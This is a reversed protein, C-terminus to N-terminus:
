TQICRRIHKSSRKPRIRATPLTTLAQEETAAAAPAETPPEAPATTPAAAQQPQAGCAVLLLGLVLLTILLHIQKKM